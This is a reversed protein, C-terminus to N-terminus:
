RSLVPYGHVYVWDTDKAPAHCPLCDVRYDTSTTRAPDGGHFWAWGWGDGWLPNEAHQGEAAKVMVFWGKLADSHSVIGTTKPETAADFVEKVLVTGDPFRGDARNAAAAGPSAYVIHFEASGEGAGAAVAWTGLYQYADRYDGPVRITGDGAVAGGADQARAASEPQWGGIAMAGAAITLAV